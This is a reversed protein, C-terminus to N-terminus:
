PNSTFTIRGAFGGGALTGYPITSWSTGFDASSFMQSSSGAVRLTFPSSPSITLSHFESGGGMGRSEFRLPQSLVLSCTFFIYLPLTSLFKM